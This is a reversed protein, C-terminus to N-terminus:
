EGFHLPTCYLATSSTPGAPSHAPYAAPPHPSIDRPALHALHQLQQIRAPSTHMHQCLRLTESEQCPQFHLSARPETTGGRRAEGRTGSGVSLLSLSPSLSLRRKFKSLKCYKQYQIQTRRSYLVTSVRRAKGVQNCGYQISLLLSLPTYTGSVRAPQRKRSKPMKASLRRASAERERERM